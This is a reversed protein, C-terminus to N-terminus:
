TSASPTRRGCPSTSASEGDVTDLHAGLHDHWARLHSGENFLYLDDDRAARSRRTAM